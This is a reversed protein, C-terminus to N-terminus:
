FPETKFTAVGMVLRNGNSLNAQNPNLLTVIVPMELAARVVVIEDSKPATYQGFNATDLERNANIPPPPKSNPNYPRVDIIVKSCDFLAVISKCLETKFMEAPVPAPKKEAEAQAAMVSSQFEGTYLRRSADTVANELTQATWLTLAMEVIAFLLALFPVAILGFEVATAGRQDAGFGREPRIIRSLLTFPRAKLM